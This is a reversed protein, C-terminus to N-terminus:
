VAVDLNSLTNSCEKIWASSAESNVGSRELLHARILRNFSWVGSSIRGRADGSSAIVEPSWGIRRYVRLMRTEFVGIAKSLNLMLGLELAGLMLSSATTPDAGPAVCFRTCEWVSPHVFSNQGALEKFHEAIMTRGTSPLFRMSGVHEGNKGEWVVYIPDLDDYEDREEGLENVRVDWGLRELFQVRRHHFMTSALVPNAALEIASLYRLM